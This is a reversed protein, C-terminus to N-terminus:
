GCPQMCYCKPLSFMAGKGDEDVTTDKEKQNGWINEENSKM